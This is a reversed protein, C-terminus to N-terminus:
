IAWIRKIQDTTFGTERAIDRHHKKEELKKFAKPVSGDASTPDTRGGVVDITQPVTKRRLYQPVKDRNRVTSVREVILGTRLDHYQYVPM